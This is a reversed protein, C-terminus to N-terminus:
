PHTVEVCYVRRSGPVGRLAHEGCDVLRNTVASTTLPGTRQWAAARGAASRDGSRVM